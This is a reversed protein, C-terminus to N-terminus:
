AAADPLQRSEQTRGTGNKSILSEKDSQSGCLGLNNRLMLLRPFKRYFRGWREVLAFVAFPSLM